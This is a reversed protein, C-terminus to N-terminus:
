ESLAEIAEELTDVAEVMPLVGTMTLFNRKTKDLGMIVCEGHFDEQIRCISDFIAAVGPSSIISCESFDFIINSCSGTLLVGVQDKLQQGGESALYGAIYIRSCGSKEKLTKILCNEM